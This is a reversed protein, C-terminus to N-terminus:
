ELEPDWPDPNTLSTLVHPSWGGGVFLYDEARGEVTFGLRALVAASAANDPLHNAMVRHMALGQRWFAHALAARLAETMLGQGHWDFDLSYGVNCAQFRGRVFNSFNAVGIARAPERRPFLFLRLSRDEALERRNAALRRTWYPLTFFGPTWPADTPALRERNRVFYDLAAPAERAPPLRLVLRETELTVPSPGEGARHEPRLLSLLLDDHAEEGLMHHARLRGDVRFGLAELLRLSARDFDGTQAMAKRAGLDEFVHDLLLEVAERGFGRGRAEPAILFGIECARNRPNWDFVRVRGLLRGEGLPRVALAAAGGPHPPVPLPAAAAGAPPLRRCTQRAPESARLWSELPAADDPMLPTLRLRAGSRVTPPSSM